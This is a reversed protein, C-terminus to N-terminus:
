FGDNVGLIYSQAGEDFELAHKVFDVTGRGQTSIYRKNNINQFYMICDVAGEFASSGMMGGMKNTHHICMIHTGTERALDRYRSLAKYVQQYNNQDEIRAFLVLTDIIVFRPQNTQIYEKLDDFGDPKYLPGVHFYVPDTEAVGLAKFQKYVMTEQEELALYLAAGQKVQRGLFEGGKAIATTLQRIITSKGSKAPGAIVSIGGKTLLGDVLWDIEPKKEFLQKINKIDFANMRKENNGKNKYASKITKKYEAQPVRKYQCPVNVLINFAEDQSYGQEQMDKAAFFLNDNFNSEVNFALFELTKKSLRGKPGDPSVLIKDPAVWKQKKVLTGDEKVKQVVPSVYFQRSPDKCKGDLFPFEKHLEEFTAYYDDANDIEAELELVVRFRDCAPKVVGSDSVKDKQHNRSTAIGYRYNEFYKYAENLTCKEDIDLMIFKTKEFNDITRYDDRFTSVCIDKQAMLNVVEKLSDVKIRKCYVDKAIESVYM